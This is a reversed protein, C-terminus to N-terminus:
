FFWGPSDGGCWNCDSAFVCDNPGTGPYQCGWRGNGINTCGNKCTNGWFFWPRWGYYRPRYRHRWRGRGRRGHRGHRHHRRFSETYSTFAFYSVVLLIILLILTKM